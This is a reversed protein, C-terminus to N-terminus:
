RVLYPFFVLPLNSFATIGDFAFSFMKAYPYNTAGAYREERKYLVATQNFGAWAIQGRLFKNREPMAVIIDKIKKWLYQAAKIHKEDTTRIFVSNSINLINLAELFKKM